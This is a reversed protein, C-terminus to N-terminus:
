VRLVDSHADRDHIVLAKRHRKAIAIHERFSREQQKRGGEGTRFYDLGTEGIGRVRDNGALMDIEALAADLDALHPAENPHVAVTAVVADHQEAVATAWRSSPVDIGVQVVRDVGVAAAATLAAAVGGPQDCGDQLDFHTHSDLVPVRLPEPPPPAEGARRTSGTPASRPEQSQPTARMEALM